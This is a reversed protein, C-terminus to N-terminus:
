PVIRLDGGIARIQLAIALAESTDNKGYQKRYGLVFDNMDYDGMEPYMDEFLVTGYVTSNPSFTMNKNGEPAPLTEAADSIVGSINASRTLIKNQEIDITRVATKGNNDVYALYLKNLLNLATLTITEPKDAELVTTCMLKQLNEDEYIYARTTVDSKLQIAIDKSMSWDFDLPVEIIEKDDPNVNPNDAFVMKETCASFTTFAIAVSVLKLTTKLKPEM